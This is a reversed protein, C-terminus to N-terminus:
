GIGARNSCAVPAEVGRQNYTRQRVANRARVHTRAHFHTRPISRGKSWRLSPSVTTRLPSSVEWAISEYTYGPGPLPIIPGQGIVDTLYRQNTINHGWLSIRASKSSALNVNWTLRADLVGYPKVSYYQAGNPVATALQSERMPKFASPTGEGPAPQFRLSMPGFRLFVAPAHRGLAM